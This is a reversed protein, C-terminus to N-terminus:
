SDSRVSQLTNYLNSSKLLLRPYRAHSEQPSGSRQLLAHRFRHQLHTRQHQSLDKSYHFAFFQSHIRQATLATVTYDVALASLQLTRRSTGCVDAVASRFSPPKIVRTILALKNALCPSGFVRQMEIAYVVKSCICDEFRSGNQHRPCVCVLLKNCILECSVVSRSDPFSYGKYKSRYIM